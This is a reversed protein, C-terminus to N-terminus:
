RILIFTTNKVGKRETYWAEGQRGGLIESVARPVLRNAIEDRGDLTEPLAKRLAGWIVGWPVGFGAEKKILGARRIVEIAKNELTRLADLKEDGTDVLESGAPLGPSSPPPEGPSGGEM